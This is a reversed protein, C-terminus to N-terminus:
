AYVCDALEDRSGRIKNLAKLEIQRVAEASLGLEEGIKKFTHRGSQIFRFRHLIV